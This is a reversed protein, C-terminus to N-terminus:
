HNSESIPFTKEVSLSEIIGNHQTVPFGWCGSVKLQLGPIPWIIRQIEWFPPAARAHTKDIQWDRDEPISSGSRMCCVTRSYPPSAHLRLNKGVLVALTRHLCKEFLTCGIQSRTLLRGPSLVGGQIEPLWWCPVACGAVGHCSREVMFSPM